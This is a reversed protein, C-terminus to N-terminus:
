AVRSIGELVEISSSIFYHVAVINVVSMSVHSISLFTWAEHLELSRLSHGQCRLM